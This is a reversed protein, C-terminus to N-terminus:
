ATRLIDTRGEGIVLRYYRAAVSRAEELRGRAVVKDGARAQEAFRGRFSVVERPPRSEIGALVRVDKLLYRCPTMLSESDDLIQASITCQGTPRYHMHGYRETIERWDRVCRIFYEHRLFRGQFVKGREQIAFDKFGIANRLARRTYLRRLDSTGYRHLYEDEELLDFAAAQVRRATVMGYAMVDIDSDQRHLEVLLSGSIGLSTSPLKSKRAIVEVLRVANM